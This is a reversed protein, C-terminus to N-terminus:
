HKSLEQAAAWSARMLERRRQDEAAAIELVQEKTVGIGRVIEYTSTAAAEHSSTLLRRLRYVRKILEVDSASIM